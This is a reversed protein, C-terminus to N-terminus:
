PVVSLEYTGVDQKLDINRAKSVVLMRAFLARDEKLEVIKDGNKITVKKGASSWMQLKLKKMPAWLNVNNTIIRESVFQLCKDEGITTRNNIDEQIKEPLVAKTVMNILQSCQDTFPNTFKAITHKLDMANKEQEKVKAKTLKKKSGTCPM